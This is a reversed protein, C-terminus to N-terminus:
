DMHWIVRQYLSGNHPYNFDISGCRYGDFGLMNHWCLCTLPSVSLGGDCFSRDVVHSQDSFGWSYNRSFYWQVGNSRFSCSSVSSCDYLVNQRNDMAALQYM